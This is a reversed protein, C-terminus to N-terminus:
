MSSSDFCDAFRTTRRRMIRRNCQLLQNRLLSQRLKRVLIKEVQRIANFMKSRGTIPDDESNKVGGKATFRFGSLPLLESRGNQWHSNLAAILPVANM